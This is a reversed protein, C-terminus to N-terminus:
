GRKRENYLIQLVEQKKKYFKQSTREPSQGLIMEELKKFAEFADRSFADRIKNTVSILSSLFKM